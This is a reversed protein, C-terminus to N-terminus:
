RTVLPRGSQGPSPEWHLWQVDPLCREMADRLAVCGPNETAFHGAQILSFGSESAELANHQRVEGTVLVDAGAERAARWEGDAAGGVLAVRRVQLAPDGWALSRTELREDCREVFAGFPMPERLTGVRGTPMARDPELAYWDAAPEDYPHVQKLAARAAALRERPVRMEVRLEDVHERSGVTGVMPNAGPQPEYTGRGEGFFACRQYAGLTGCGADSLADVVSEAHSAPVFVVVKLESSEGAAGFPACAEVGLLRALTDNIGGPAADWNTHAAAFAINSALLVSLVDGPRSTPDIREVPEWILPHHALLLEAGSAAAFAAAERSSDLSVVARTLAAKPDGTQLGIRDWSFAYRRPAVVELAELADAVTAM